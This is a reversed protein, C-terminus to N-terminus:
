ARTRSAGKKAQDSAGLSHGASQVVERLFEYQTHVLRDAMDLAAGILEQRMSPHEDGLAPLKEDITDVFKHVSEIAARQGKEVSELVEDSLETPRDVIAM